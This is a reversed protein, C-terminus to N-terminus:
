KKLLYKGHERAQKVDACDPKILCGIVGVSGGATHLEIAIEKFTAQGKRSKIYEVAEPNDQCTNQVQAKGQGYTSVRKKIPPLPLLNGTMAQEPKPEAEAPVTLQLSYPPVPSANDINNINPSEEINRYPFNPFLNKKSNAWEIVEKSSYVYDYEVDYLVDEIGDYGWKEHTFPERALAGVLAAEDLVQKIDPYSVGIDELRKYVPKHCNSKPPIGHLICM